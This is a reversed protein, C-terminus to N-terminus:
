RVDTVRRGGLDAHHERRHKRIEYILGTIGAAATGASVLALM